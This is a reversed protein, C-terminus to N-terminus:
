TDSRYPNVAAHDCHPGDHAAAKGEDWAEAKAQQVISEVAPLLRAAIRQGVHWNMPGEDDILLQEALRERTPREADCRICMAGETGRIVGHTCRTLEADSLMVRDTM